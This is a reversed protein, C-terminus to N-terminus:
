GPEEAELLEIETKLDDLVGELNGKVEYLLEIRDIRDQCNCADQWRQEADKVIRSVNARLFPSIM